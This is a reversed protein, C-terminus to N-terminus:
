TSASRPTAASGPRGSSAVATSTPPSSSSAERIQLQKIEARVDALEDAPHRNRLPM